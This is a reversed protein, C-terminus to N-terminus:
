AGGAGAPRQSVAREAEDGTIQRSRYIDPGYRRLRDLEERQMPRQHPAGAYYVLAALLLCKM